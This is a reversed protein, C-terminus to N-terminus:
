AALRDDARSAPSVATVAGEDRRLIAWGTVGGLAAGLFALVLASVAVSLAPLASAAALTPVNLLIAGAVAFRTITM